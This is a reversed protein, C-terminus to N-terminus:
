DKEERTSPHVIGAVAESNLRAIFRAISIASVRHIASLTICCFRASPSGFGIMAM